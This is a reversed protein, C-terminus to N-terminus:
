GGVVPPRMGHFFLWSIALGIWIIFGFLSVVYVVALRGIGEAWLRKFNAAMGIAFFTMAFFLTRFVDAEKMAPKLDSLLEPQLRALAFLGGFTLAYGLVFKPFRQWMEAPRVREGPRRDIRYVWILALVFAWVGIFVDIFMKVTTTTLVMTDPRYNIGQEQLARARILAETIVGSAFAAGDTKVALGMWAAAVLPELYLFAQAVLPLLLLEIVAFIVVLSSVMVPVVPRARIAAGTAIAASVGCISIGSALPAAWERSFGFYRRAIFYVLAWYVLYAEVIAAFGRFLIAGTLDPMDAAKMGLSAGYIVIATKIFWESRAGERLRGAVAPLFNGVLLGALLALIYGAEGTLGLSWTIGFGARKDPTAAIFANHGALFCLYSVWFVVTFGAVFRRLPLGMARAGIALAGLLFAYTLLLSVWGNLATYNSSAPGVARGLVLWESTAVAWGLVDLGAAAALALAVVLLGVWVAWWDESTLWSRAVPIEQFGGGSDSHRAM